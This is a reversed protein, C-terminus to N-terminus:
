HEMAWLVEFLQVSKNPQEAIDIACEKTSTPPFSHHKQLLTPSILCLANQTYYCEQLQPQDGAHTTSRNGQWQSQWLNALIDAGLTGFGVLM